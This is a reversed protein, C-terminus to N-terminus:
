AIFRELTSTIKKTSKIKRGLWTNNNKSFNVFDNLSYFVHEEWDGKCVYGSFKIMGNKDLKEVYTELENNITYVLIERVANIAVLVTTSPYLERNWSDVAVPKINDKIIYPDSTLCVENVRIISENILKITNVTSGKTSNNDILRHVQEHFTWIVNNISLVSLKLKGFAYKTETLLTAKCPIRNLLQLKESKLSKFAKHKYELSLDTIEEKNSKKIILGNKDIPIYKWEWGDIEFSFRSGNKLKDNFKPSLKNILYREKIKADDQSVCESYLVMYTEEYCESPLHGTKGFHQVNIRTKINGTVGIYIPEELKNLLQYVYFM